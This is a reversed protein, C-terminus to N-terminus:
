RFSQSLELIHEDDDDAPVATVRYEWCDRANFTTSSRDPFIVGYERTRIEIRESNVMVTIQEGEGLTANHTVYGNRIVEMFIPHDWQNSITIEPNTGDCERTCSSAFVLLFLFIALPSKQLLLRAKM